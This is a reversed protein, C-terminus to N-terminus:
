PLSCSCELSWSIAQISNTHLRKQLAMHGFRHTYLYKQHKLNDSCIELIWYNRRYYNTTTISIDYTQYKEIIKEM